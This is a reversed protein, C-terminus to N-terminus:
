LISSTDLGHLGQLMDMIEKKSLKTSMNGGELLSDSLSRKNKHMELIREEITQNAILKYITVPRTQGIRHSRDSAQDEIAPNWWPDMHIVYDAATLNLGTGGAKLSILFLPKKGQQFEAVLREREKISTQGDLYFYPLGLADLTLTIKKLFSSFQSFILANHKNELLEAIIEILRQLKASTNLPLNDDILRPHCTAQRLKTIEALTQIPNLEGQELSKLAHQRINEYLAREEPSLEVHHIIETKAPLEELVESKTRRLLFPQILRKLQQQRARDKDKEIPLIYKEKFQEFNGLLGPNTFQFLNWIEGLHNQIPTGTLALRFQGQLSMAIKSCKTDRNKINHAEDLLIINWEKQTINENMRSLLGYTTVVVDYSSAQAIIKDRSDLQEHLLHCQLSPAFREIERRWNPVVSAPAVILTAGLEARQLMIAISQVSKGLGMDDALCAGAGWAALRSLWEYGDIQYDRLQAALTTPVSVKLEYADRIRKQLEKYQKDAKLSAGEEELNGLLDSRFTSLQLGGKKNETISSDIEALKKRLKESLALYEGKDLEIFRGKHSRSRQLLEALSLQLHEDVHIDGDVHLWQGRSFTSLRMQKFDISGRINLRAGKPWEIRLETERDQLHDLLELCDYMEEFVLCDEVSDDHAIERLTARVKRYNKREKNLERQLKIQGEADSAMCTEIGQGAKFYPPHEELPKSFLEVKVGDAMPLIQVTIRSSGKKQRLQETQALLESHVTLTSGMSNILTTLQEKAELPFTKQENLLKLIDRQLTTLRYIKYLVDSEQKVLLTSSDEPEINTKIQFNKNTQKIELYPTDEMVQVSIDPNSQLYLYPHNVVAALAKAGGLYYHTGRWSEMREITLAVAKDVESMYEVNGKALTSLAVSRGKTWTQGDKSKKFIPTLTGGNSVLYIIRGQEQEPATGQTKKKSQPKAQLLKDISALQKQWAELKVYPKFIPSIGLEEKLQEQAPVLGKLAKGAELQLLKWNTKRLIEATHERHQDESGALQYHTLIFSSLVGDLLTCNSLSIEMNDIEDRKDLLHHLYLLSSLPLYLDNFQQQIYVKILKKESSAKSDAGLAHLYMLSYFPSNPVDYSGGYFTSQQTTKKALTLGKQYNTIAKANNGQYQYLLAKAYFGYVSDVASEMNTAAAVDGQLAHCLLYKVPKLLTALPPALHKSNILNDLHDINSSLNANTELLFSLQYLIHAANDYSIANLAGIWPESTLIYSCVCLLLKNHVLNYVKFTKDKDTPYGLFFRRMSQTHDFPIKSQDIIRQFLLREENSQPMFYRPYDAFKLRYSLGGNRGSPIECLQDDEVLDKIFAKARKTPIKILLCCDVIRSETVPELHYACFRLIFAKIGNLHENKIENISQTIKNANNSKM